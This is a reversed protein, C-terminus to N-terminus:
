VVAVFKAIGAIQGIFFPSQDFRQDRGRLAAAALPHNDHTFHDIVQHVYEGSAARPPGNRFIQRGATGHVAIKVKPVPIARRVADMM